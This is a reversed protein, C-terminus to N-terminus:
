LQCKPIHLHKICTHYYVRGAWLRGSPDCKGDNFRTNKGHEVEVLSEVAKTDWDVAVLSRELGVIYGGSARPIVHGVNGDPLIPLLTYM